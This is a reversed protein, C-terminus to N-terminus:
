ENIALKMEKCLVICSGGAQLHLKKEKKRKRKSHHLMERPTMEGRQKNNPFMIAGNEKTPSFFEVSEEEKATADRM